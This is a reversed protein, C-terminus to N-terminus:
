SKLQISLYVPSEFRVYFAPLLFPFLGEKWASEKGGEVAKMGEIRRPAHVRRGLGRDREEQGRGGSREEEDVEM